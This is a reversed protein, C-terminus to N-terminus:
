KTLFSKLKEKLLTGSESSCSCEEHNRNTGCVTCLGKCAEQCLPQLPINLLLEEYILADLDIEDGEYYEIDLDKAKLETEAGQPLSEKPVLEVDLYGEVSFPFEDLCRVCTLNLRSRVPGSVVVRSEFRSVTLEYEPSSVLAFGKEDTGIFRSVEGHGRVVLAEEIDSIKIIL